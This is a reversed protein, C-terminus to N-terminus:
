NERDEDDIVIVCKGKKFDTIASEISSFKYKGNRSGNSSEQTNVKSRKTKLVQKMILKIFM